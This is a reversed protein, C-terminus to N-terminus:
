GPAPVEEPRVANAAPQIGAGHHRAYVQTFEAGFFLIQASYYVWLLFVVVSGVAGYTTGANALYLNLAFQGIMFMAATVAAGLWVHRWAIEVDPLVKYIAAFIFTIVAFSVVYNVVQWVWDFGPLWAQGAAIVVSLVSSLVLSVLLLFAVGLVMAFSLFRDRIAGWIGRGPKPEVNWIANLSTQLQAFVNTSGWLLAIFSLIGALSAVTPQQASELAMELFQAGEAGVTSRLQALLQSEAAQQEGLVLGVVAIILVLLPAISVATYFSLAAALQSANDEIWGNVTEKLMQWMSTEKKGTELEASLLLRQNRQVGAPVTALPPQPSMGFHQQFMAVDRRLSRVTQRPYLSGQKLRKRGVQILMAGLVLTFLAILLAALWFPL